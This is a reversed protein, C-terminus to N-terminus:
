IQAAMWCARLWLPEDNGLVFDTVKGGVVNLESNWGADGGRLTAERTKRDISFDM